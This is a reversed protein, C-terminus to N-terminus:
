HGCEAGDAGRAPGAPAPTIFGEAIALQVAAELAAVLRPLDEGPVDFDVRERTTHIEPYYPGVARVVTIQVGVLGADRGTPPVSVQVEIEASFAPGDPGARLLENALAVARREVRTDISSQEPVPTTGPTRQARAPKNQKANTHGPTM